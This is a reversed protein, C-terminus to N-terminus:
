FKGQKLKETIAHTLDHVSPFDPPGMEQASEDVDIVTTETAL